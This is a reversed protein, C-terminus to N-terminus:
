GDCQPCISHTRSIADCDNGSFRMPYRPSISSSVSCSSTSVSTVFLMLFSKFWWFWNTTPSASVHTPLRAVSSMARSRAGSMSRSSRVFLGYTRLFAASAMDRTSFLTGSSVSSKTSRMVCSILSRDWPTCIVATCSIISTTSPSGSNATCKVRSTGDSTRM